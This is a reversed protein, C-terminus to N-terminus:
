FLKRDIWDAIDGIVQAGEPEFHLEHRLGPYVKRDVSISQALPASAATPVLSDDGGHIVLTPITIDGTKPALRAQEAFFSRGLGVTGFQQVLPDADYAEGVAPDRSLHEGNIPTKMSMSPAVKGLIKAAARTIAPANDGLAPASLVALNPTPERRDILYGAAVLGGLSHGYLVWPLGSAASTALAIEAADSAFVELGEIHMRPGESQGHGRLDFSTVRAGRSAFQSLRELWRGSHEGLGHVHLLEYTPNEASVTMTLLDTGDSVTFSGIIPEV